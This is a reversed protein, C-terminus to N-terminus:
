RGSNINEKARLSLNLYIKFKDDRLISQFDSLNNKLNLLETKQDINFNIYHSDQIFELIKNEIRIALNKAKHASELCDEELNSSYKEFCKLLNVRSTTIYSKAIKSSLSDRSSYEILLMVDKFEQIAVIHKEISELMKNIKSLIMENSRRKTELEFKLIELEIASKESIKTNSKAKYLSIIAILISSFSFILAIWIQINM